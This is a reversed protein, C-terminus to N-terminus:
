QEPWEFHIQGLIKLADLLGESYVISILATEIQNQSLYFEADAVYRSVSDLLENVKSGNLPPPTSPLQIQTLVKRTKQIYKSAKSQLNKKM